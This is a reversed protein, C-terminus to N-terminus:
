GAQLLLDPVWPAPQLRLRHISWCLMALSQPSLPPPSPPSPPQQQQRSSNVEEEEAAKETSTSSCGGRPCPFLTRGVKSRGVEDRGVVLTATAGEKRRPIFSAAVRDEFQSLLHLQWRRPILSSPGPRPGLRRHSQSGGGTPGAAPEPASGAASENEQRHVSSGGRGEGGGHRSASAGGISGKISVSSGWIGGERLDALVPESISKSALSAAPSSSRIGGTPAPSSPAIGVGAASTGEGAELAGAPGRGTWSPPTVVGAGGNAPMRFRGEPDPRTILGPLAGTGGTGATGDIGRAALDGRDAFPSPEGVLFDGRSWWPQEDSDSDDEFSDDMWGRQGKRSEPEAKDGSPLFHSSRSSSSLRPSAPPSAITSPPPASLEEAQM